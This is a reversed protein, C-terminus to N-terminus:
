LLTSNLYSFNGHIEKAAKNYAEAAEIESKFRGLYTSKGSYWIRAEWLNYQKSWHVGKYKSVGYQKRRNFCNQQQSCIRLNSKQNNLTNHDIHDVVQNNEPRMIQRHMLVTIHGSPFASESRAAAYGNPSQVAHWKTKFLLEFDDDDVVTVMGKTLKIEKM